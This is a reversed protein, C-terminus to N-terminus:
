KVEGHGFNWVIEIEAVIDAMLSAVAMLERTLKNASFKVNIHGRQSV